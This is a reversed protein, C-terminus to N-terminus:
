GSRRKSRKAAKSKAHQRAREAHEKLPKEALRELEEGSVEDSLDMHDEAAASRQILMMWADRDDAGEGPGWAGAELGFYEATESSPVLQQRRGPTMGRLARLYKGVRARESARPGDFAYPRGEGTLVWGLNVPFIRVLKRWFDMPPEVSGSEYRAVNTQSYGEVLAGFEGQNVGLVRRLHQIVFGFHVYGGKRLWFPDADEDVATPVDKEERKRSL